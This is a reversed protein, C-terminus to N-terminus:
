KKIIKKVEALALIATAIATAAAFMTMM